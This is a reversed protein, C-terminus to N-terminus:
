WRGTILIGVFLGHTRTCSGSSNKSVISWFHSATMRRMTSTCSVPAGTSTPVRETSADCSTLRRRAAAPLGCRTSLADCVASSAAIM